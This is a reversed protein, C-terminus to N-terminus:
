RRPLSRAHPNRAAVAGFWEVSLAPTGLVRRVLAPDDAETRFGPFMVAFTEFVTPASDDREVLVLAGRPDVTGATLVRLYWGSRGTAIMRPGVDKRATHLSLKFCPARPQCVQVRAEGWALVDGIRVQRERAGATVLNEGVGGPEIPFGDAQWDVAHESPYSYVAKDPGGHVSRDAQDDGALNIGDLTIPEPGVPAKAISSVTDRDGLTQPRGVRTELLRLTLEM